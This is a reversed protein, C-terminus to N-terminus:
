QLIEKVTKMQVKAQAKAKRKIAVKDATRRKSRKPAYLNTKGSLSADAEMEENTAHRNQLMWQELEQRKFFLRKGCPTYFPIENNMTKKYLTSVKMGIYQAAEQSTLADKLYFMREQMDTIFRVFDSVSGFQGIFEHIEAIRQCEKRCQEITDLTLCMDKLIAEYRELMKEIDEDM